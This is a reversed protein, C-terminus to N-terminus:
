QSRFAEDTHPTRFASQFGSSGIECFKANTKTKTLDNDTWPGEDRQLNGSRSTRQLSPQRVSSWMLWGSGCKSPENLLSDSSKLRKQCTPYSTFLADVNWLLLCVKFARELSQRFCCTKTTTSTHIRHDVTFLLLWVQFARELRKQTTSNLSISCLMLLVCVCYGGCKSPKSLPTDSAALRSQTPFLECALFLSAGAGFKVWGSVM